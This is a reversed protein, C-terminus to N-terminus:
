RQVQGLCGNPKKGGIFALFAETSLLTTPSYRTDPLFDINTFDIMWGSLGPWIHPLVCIEHSTYATLPRKQIERDIAPLLDLFPAVHNWGHKPVLDGYFDLLTKPMCIILNFAAGRTVQPCNAQQGPWDLSM